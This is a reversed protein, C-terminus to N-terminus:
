PQQFNIQGNAVYDICDECCYVQGVISKQEDRHLFAVLPKWQSCSVCVLKKNNDIKM